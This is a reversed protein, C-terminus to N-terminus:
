TPEEDPDRGQKQGFEPAFALAIRHNLGIECGQTGGAGM